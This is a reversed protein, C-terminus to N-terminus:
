GHLTVMHRTGFSTSLPAFVFHAICSALLWDKAFNELSYLKYLFFSSYPGLLQCCELIKYSKILSNYLQREKLSGTM